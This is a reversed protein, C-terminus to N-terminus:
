AIEVGRDQRHEVGSGGVNRDVCVVRFFARRQDETFRFDVRDGVSLSVARRGLSPPTQTAERTLELRTATTTM